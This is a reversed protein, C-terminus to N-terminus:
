AAPSQPLPGSSPLRCATLLSRRAVIRSPVPRAHPFLEVGLLGLPLVFLVGNFLHLLETLVDFRGVGCISCARAPIRGPCPPRASIRCAAQASFAAPPPLLCRWRAALLAAQQPVRTVSPPSRGCRRGSSPCGRPLASPPRVPSAAAGPRCEADSSDDALVLGHLRTQSAMRRLRAPMWSGLRGMPEKRNRPGVPTPLVSSALARASARNSLSFFMTRISMLSYMSFYETERSM